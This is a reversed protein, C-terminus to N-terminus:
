PSAIRGAAALDCRQKVEASLEPRHAPDCSRIPPIVYAGSSEGRTSSPSVDVAAVTLSTRRECADARDCPERRFTPQKPEDEPIQVSRDARATIM